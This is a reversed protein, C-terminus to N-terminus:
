AVFVCATRLALWPAHTPNTVRQYVPLSVYSSHFSGGNKMPFDVIIWCRAWCGSIRDLEQLCLVRADRQIWMHKHHFLPKKCNKARQETDNSGPKQPADWFHILKISTQLTFGHVRGDTDAPSM